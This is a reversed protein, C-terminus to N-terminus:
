PDTTYGQRRCVCYTDRSGLAEDSRLEPDRGTLELVSEFVSTVDTREKEM